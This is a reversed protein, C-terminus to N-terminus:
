AFFSGHSGLNHGLGADGLKILSLAGVELTVSERVQKLKPFGRAHNCLYRRNPVVTVPRM